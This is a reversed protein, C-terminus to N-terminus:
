KKVCEGCKKWREKMSSWRRGAGLVEEACELVHDRANNCTIASSLELYLTISPSLIPIVTIPITVSLSRGDEDSSCCSEEPEM